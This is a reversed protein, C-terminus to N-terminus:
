LDVKVVPPTLDVPPTPTNCAASDRSALPTAAYAAFNNNRFRLIELNLDIDTAIPRDIGFINLVVPGDFDAGDLSCEALDRILAHITKGDPRNLGLASVMRDLAHAAGGLAMAHMRSADPLTPLPAAPNASETTLIDFGWAALSDARADAYAQAFNSAGTAHRARLFLAHTYVSSVAFNEAPPLVALLEVSADLVITRTTSPRTEDDYSGGSSKILLMPRSAPLAASWRGTQDTTTAAVPVGFPHGDPGLRYLEVLANRVPGKIVQGFINPAPPISPVNSVDINVAATETGTANSVTYFFTDPGTYGAVPTYILVDDSIDSPTGNDSIVVNGFSPSSTSEISFAFSELVDIVVPTAMPTTVSKDRASVSPVPMVRVEGSARGSAGDSITYGFQDAGLYGSDPFYIIFDDGTFEPTGADNISATGHAPTGVMIISLPNGDPDIDNSLVPIILPGGDAEISDSTAIPATNTGDGTVGGSSSTGSGGSCAAVTLVLLVSVFLRWRAQGTTKNM